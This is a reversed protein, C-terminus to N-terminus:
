ELIKRADSKMNHSIILTRVSWVKLNKKGLGLYSVNQSTYYSVQQKIKKKRTTEETLDVIKQTKTM